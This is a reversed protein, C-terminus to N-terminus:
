LTFSSTRGVLELNLNSTAFQPGTNIRNYFHVLCSFHSYSSKHTIWKFQPRCVNCVSPLTVIRDPFNVSCSYDSNSSNHNNTQISTQLNCFLSSVWWTPHFKKKHTKLQWQNWPMHSSSSYYSHMFLTSDPHSKLTLPTIHASHIDISWELM